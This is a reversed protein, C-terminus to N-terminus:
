EKKDPIEVSAPYKTLRQVQLADAGFTQDFLNGSGVLAESLLKLVVHAVEANREAYNDISNKLQGDSREPWKNEGLYHRKQREHNESTRNIYGVDLVEKLDPRGLPTNDLQEQRIDTWGRVTKFVDINRDAQM